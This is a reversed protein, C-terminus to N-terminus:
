KISFVDGISGFNFDGLLLEFKKQTSKLKFYHILNYKVSLPFKPQNMDLEWPHLYIVAPHGNSNIEKIAWKIFQYPYIRLYFGGAIPINRELIKVTSLPIEILKKGGKQLIVSPFVSADPIGYTFTKIPFVSSDYKFGLELLIELAWLTDKRVSFWPARYGIVEEGIINEVIDRTKKVDEMFEDKTQNFIPKHNYGHIGIEHGEKYINKLILPHSEASNGQIFFTAKANYKSLLYLVRNVNKAIRDELKQNKNYKGSDILDQYWPEVDITLANLM